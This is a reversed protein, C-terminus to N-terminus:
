IYTGEPDFVQTVQGDPTVREIRGDPSTAVYAAGDGAPAVAHIDLGEADYVERGAGAADVLYLRADSGTGVWLGDGDAPALSWAVPATTDFLEATVPGLVLHGDADVSLADVEGRLFEAQTSVRWFVPSAAAVVVVWLAVGAVVLLGRGSVGRGSASRLAIHCASFPCQIM